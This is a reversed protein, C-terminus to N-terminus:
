QQAIADFFDCVTELADLRVNDTEFLPEHRSYTMLHLQSPLNAATRQEHFNIISANNVVTDKGGVLFLMPVHISTAINPLQECAQMSKWVWQTSAGGVQIQKHELYLARFWEYRIKSHMLANDEFPLDEYEGQLPAFNAPADLNALLHCLPQAIYKLILPLNIQYMPASLAIGDITSPYRHAYLTSIAGGMSHCLIFRKGYHTNSVIKDIFTSLDDVYDKFDVVHGIDSYQVLRESQGQGRHDYSYIDYGQQFLDWFVSQYKISADTRGNVVVIAKTHKPNTMACWYLRLGACGIFFGDKRTQWFPTIKHDLDYTLECEETFIRKSMRQKKKAINFSLAKM